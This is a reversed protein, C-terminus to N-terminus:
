HFQKRKLKKKACASLYNEQVLLPVFDSDIFAIDVRQTMGKFITRCMLIKAGKM